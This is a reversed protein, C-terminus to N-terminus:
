QVPRLAPLSRLGEIAPRQRTQRTVTNTAARANLVLALQEIVAVESQSLHTPLSRGNAVAVAWAQMEQEAITATLTDALIGEMATLRIAATRDRDVTTLATTRDAMVGSFDGIDVGGAETAAGEHDKSQSNDMDKKLEAFGSAM